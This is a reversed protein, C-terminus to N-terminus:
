RKARLQKGRSVEAHLLGGGKKGGTGAEGTPFGRLAEQMGTGSRTWGAGEGAEAAGPLWLGEAGRVTQGGHMPKLAHAGRAGAGMGAAVATGGEHRAAELRGPAARWGQGTGGTPVKGAEIPPADGQGEGCFGTWALSYGRWDGGADGVSPVEVAWTGCVAGRGREPFRGRRAATQVRTKRGGAM